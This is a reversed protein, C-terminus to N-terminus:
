KIIDFYEYHTLGYLACMNDIRVPDFVYSLLENNFRIRDGNRIPIMEEEEADGDILNGMLQVGYDDDDADILYEMNSIDPDEGEEMEILEEEDEEEDEDDEDEEDDDEDDDEVWYEMNWVGFNLNKFENRCMPCCPTTLM